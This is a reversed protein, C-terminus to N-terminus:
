NGEKEESECELRSPALISVRGHTGRALERTGGVAFPGLGWLPSQRCGCRGIEAARM